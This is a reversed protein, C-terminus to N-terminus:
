QHLPEQHLGEHVFIGLTLSQDDVEADTINILCYAVVFFIVVFINVNVLHKGVCVVLKRLSIAPLM